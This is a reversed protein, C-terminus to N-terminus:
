DTTQADTDDAPLVDSSLEPSLAPFPSSDDASAQAPVSANAQAISNDISSLLVDDSTTDAAAQAANEGDIAEYNEGDATTECNESDTAEYNENDATADNEGDTAVDEQSTSRPSDATADFKACAKDAPMFLTKASVTMYGAKFEGYGKFLKAVLFILGLVLWAIAMGLLFGVWDVCVDTWSGYRGEATLQLGESAMALLLGTPVSLPASLWKRKFLFIYVYTFGFGIVAFLSFHGLAKRIFSSFTDYLKVNLVIDTYLTPDDDYTARIVLKGLRTPRFKGDSLTAKGKLVEYTVNDLYDEGGFTKISYLRDVVTIDSTIIQLSEPKDIYVRINLTISKSPDTRSTITLKAEGTSISHFYYTGIRQIVTKGKPNQISFSYAQFATAAAPVCAILNRFDVIVNPKVFYTQGDPVASEDAVLQELPKYNPNQKVTVEFSFSQAMNKHSVTITSTGPKKPCAVNDQMIFHDGDDDYSVTMGVFSVPEGNQDALRLVSVEGQLFETKKLMLSTIDRPNTGLCSATASASISPDSKLSVKISLNGLHKYSLEGNEPNLEIDNQSAGSSNVQWIVERDTSEAPIFTLEPKVTAGSYDKKYSLRLGTTAIKDGRGEVVIAGGNEGSFKQSLASSKDAPTAAQVLMFITVALTCLIAIFAIARLIKFTSKAKVSREKAPIKAIPFNGRIKFTLEFNEFRLIEKDFGLSKKLIIIICYRQFHLM